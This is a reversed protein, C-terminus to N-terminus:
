LTNLFFLISRSQLLLLYLYFNSDDVISDNDNNNYNENTWKDVGFMENLKSVGDWTLTYYSIWNFIWKCGMKNKIQNNLPVVHVKRSFRHHSTSHLAFSCACPERYM